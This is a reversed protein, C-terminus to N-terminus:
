TARTNDDSALTDEPLNEGGGILEIAESYWIWAVEKQRTFTRLPLTEVSRYAAGVAVPIAVGIEGKILKLAEKRQALNTGELLQKEWAQEKLKAQKVVGAAQEQVRREEAERQAQANVMRAQQAQQEESLFYNKEGSHRQREEEEWLREAELEEPTLHQVLGLPRRVAVVKLAKAAPAEGGSSSSSDDTSSSKRKKSKKKAKKKQKGDKKRKKEKAKTKKKKSKKKKKGKDDSSSSTSDSSGRRKHLETDDACAKPKFVRAYSALCFAM